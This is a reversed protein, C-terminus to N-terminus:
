EGGIIPEGGLVTLLYCDTAQTDLLSYLPLAEQQMIISTVNKKSPYVPLQSDPYLTPAGFSEARSAMIDCNYIYSRFSMLPDSVCDIIAESGPRTRIKAYYFRNFESAYLYNCQLISASSYNIIFSPTEIDLTETPKVTYTGLSTLYPTKEVVNSEAGNIYAIIEMLAM